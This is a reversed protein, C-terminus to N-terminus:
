RKKRKRNMEKSERNLVIDGIIAFPIAVLIIIGVVRWTITERTVLTIALIDETIGIAIGFILLVIFFKIKSNIRM